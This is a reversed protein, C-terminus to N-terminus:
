DNPRFRVNHRRDKEIWAKQETVCDGYATNGAAIGKDLCLQRAYADDTVCGALLVGSLAIASITTLFTAPPNLWVQKIMTCGLIHLRM